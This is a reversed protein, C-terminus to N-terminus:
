LLEKDRRPTQGPENSNTCLNRHDAHHPCRKNGCIECAYRFNITSLGKGGSCSQCACTGTPNLVVGGFGPSAAFIRHADELREALRELLSAAEAISAIVDRTFAGAPRAMAAIGGLYGAVQRARDAEVDASM